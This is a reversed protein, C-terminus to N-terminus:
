DSSGSRVPNTVKQVWDKLQPIKGLYHFAYTDAHDRATVTIVTDGGVNQTVGFSVMVLGAKALHEEAATKAAAVNQSQSYEALAAEAADSSTSAAAQYAHFIAMGDLIVVAVVALIVIIWIAERIFGDQSRLRSSASM